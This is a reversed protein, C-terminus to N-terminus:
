AGFLEWEKNLPHDHCQVCHTQLGLFLRTVRSTIPIADFAGEDCEKVPEGLHHLIFNAAYEPRSSGVTGGTQGTATLLQVVMEKHSSAAHSPAVTFHDKLWAHMQGSYIPHVSRTMLRVTWINAWHEAYEESYNKIVATPQSYLNRLTYPRAGLLRRVLKVRRERPSDCQYDVLEEPTPIRGILDIFVRRIYQEDTTRNATQQIGASEYGNLIFENIKQTQASIDKTTPGLEIKAPEKKEQASAVLAVLCVLSAVLTIHRFM